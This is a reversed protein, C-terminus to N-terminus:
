KNEMYAKRGQIQVWSSLSCMSHECVTLDDLGVAFVHYLIIKLASTINNNDMGHNVSLVYRLKRKGQSIGNESVYVSSERSAHECQATEPVSFFSIVLIRDWMSQQYHGILAM